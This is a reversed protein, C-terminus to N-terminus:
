KATIDLVFYDTGEIRTIHGSTYPPQFFANAPYSQGHLTNDGSTEAQAVLEDPFWKQSPLSITEPTGFGTAESVAKAADSPDLRMVAIIRKQEPFEKWVLDNENVQYPVNVSM